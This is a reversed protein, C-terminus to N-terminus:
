QFCHCMWHFGGGGGVGERIKPLFSSIASFLFAPLALLDFSPGGRVHLELDSDAVSFIRYGAYMYWHVMM